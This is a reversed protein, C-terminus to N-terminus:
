ASLRSEKYLEVKYGRKIVKGIIVVEITQWNNKTKICICVSTKKENKFKRNAIKKLVKDMKVLILNVSFILHRLLRIEKIILKWDCHDALSVSM